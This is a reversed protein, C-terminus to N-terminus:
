LLGEDRFSYHSERTIIVFDILKIDFIKCANDLKEAIKKDQESPNINGSPHNHIAIIGYTKLLLIKAFIDKISVLCVNSFGKSHHDINTVYSPTNLHIIKFEEHDDIFHEFLPRAFAILSDINTIKNTSITTRRYNLQLEGVFDEIPEFTPYIIPTKTNMKKIKSAFVM